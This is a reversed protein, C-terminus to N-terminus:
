VSRIEDELEMILNTFKCYAEFGLTLNPSTQKVSGSKNIKFTHQPKKVKKKFVNDVRSQSIKLGLNVKHHYKTKDYSAFFGHRRHSLRALKERDIPFDLKYDYNVNVQHIIYNDFSGTYLRKIKSIAIFYQKLTEIDDIYELAELYVQLNKNFKPVSEGFKYNNLFDELLEPNRKVYELRTQTTILHKQIIEKVEEIMELSKAGTIRIRLVGKETSNHVCLNIYKDKLSVDIEVGNEMDRKRIKNDKKTLGRHRNKYRISLITGYDGIWTFKSRSPAKKTLYKESKIVPFTWFIAELNVWINLDIIAVMTSPKLYKTPDM